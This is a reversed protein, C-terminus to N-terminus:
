TLKYFDIFHETRSVNKLGIVIMMMMMMMMLVTIMSAKSITEDIMMM